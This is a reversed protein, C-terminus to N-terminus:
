KNNVISTLSYGLLKENNSTKPNNDIVKPAYLKSKNISENINIGKHEPLEQLLWFNKVKYPTSLDYYKSKAEFQMRDTESMNEWIKKWKEPMHEVLMNLKPNPNLIKEMISLVEQESNCKVSDLANVVKRKDALSLSNYRGMNSESLLSLDGLIARKSDMTKQKDVMSNFNTLRESLNGVEKNEQKSEKISGLKETGPIKPLSHEAVYETYEISEDLTKGVYETYNINKEVLGGIYNTHDISKDLNTAIYNSFTIIRELLDSQYDSFQLSEDLKTAVYETYTINKSLTEAVYNTHDISKDLKEALYNSYNIINQLEEKLQKNESILSKHEKRISKAVYETYGISQNLKNRVYTDVYETLSNIQEEQSNFGEVMYDTHKVINHIEETLKILNEDKNKNPKNTKISEIIPSLSNKFSNMENRMSQLENKMIENEVILEKEKSKNDMNIKNIDKDIYENENENTKIDCGCSDGFCSELLFEKTEIDKMNNIFDENLEFIGLNENDIGLSENIKHLRASAFGPEAVLDYTFIKKITVKKNENVVGAARSSISLKVGDDILARAQQGAHTSLIKIKGIVRKNPADYEISEILHSVNNLTIDFKEPHDLEGLLRNENIKVNLYKLHPLYEVAEYIRGNENEIDFEAFVGELIYSGDKNETKRELIFNSKELIMVPIYKEM